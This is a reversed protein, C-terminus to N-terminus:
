LLRDCENMAQNIDSQYEASRPNESSWHGVEQIFRLLLPPTSEDHSHSQNTINAPTPQAGPTGTSAIPTHQAGNTPNLPTQEHAPLLGAEAPNISISMKTREDTQKTESGTGSKRVIASM